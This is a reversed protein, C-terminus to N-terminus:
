EPDIRLSRVEGRLRCLAGDIEMVPDTVAPRDQEGMRLIERRDARGLETIHSPQHRLELFAMALDDPEADVRDTVMRAPRLVDLFGLTVGDGIRHDAIGLQVDGLEVVHQRLSGAVGGLPTRRGVVGGHARYEQDAGVLLDLGHQRVRHAAPAIEVLHEADEFEHWSVARCLTAVGTFQRGPSLTIM